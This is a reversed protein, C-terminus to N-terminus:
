ICNDMLAAMYGQDWASGQDSNAPYPNKKNFTRFYAAYGEQYETTDIM